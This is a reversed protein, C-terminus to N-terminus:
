IFIEEDVIEINLYIFDQLVEIIIVFNQINQIEGSSM